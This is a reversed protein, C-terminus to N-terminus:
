HPGPPARPHRAHVAGAPQPRLAPPYHGLRAGHARPLDDAHPALLVPALADVHVGFPEQAARVARVFEPEHLALDRALLGHIIGDQRLEQPFLPSAAALDQPHDPRGQHVRPGALVHDPEDLVAVDLREEAAAAVNTTNTAVASWAMATPLM